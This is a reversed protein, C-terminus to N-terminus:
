RRLPTRECRGKSIDPVFRRPRQASHAAAGKNTITFGLFKGEEPLAVPSKAENVKPKLKETVFRTVSVMVREGPRASSSRRADIRGGNGGVLRPITGTLFCAAVWRAKLRLQAM